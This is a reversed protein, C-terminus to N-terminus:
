SFSLWSQHKDNVKAALKLFRVFCKLIHKKKHRSCKACTSNISQNLVIDKIANFILFQLNANYNTLILISIIAINFKLIVM